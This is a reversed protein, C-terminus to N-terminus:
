DDKGFCVAVLGGATTVLGSILVVGDLKWITKNPIDPRNSEKISTCYPFCEFEYEWKEKIYEIDRELSSIEREITRPLSELERIEKNLKFLENIIKVASAANKSETKAYLGDVKDELEEIVALAEASSEDFPAFLYDKAKLGTKKSELQRETKAINELNDVDMGNQEIIDHLISETRNYKAYLDDLIKENESITMEFSGNQGDLSATKVYLSLPMDLYHFGGVLALLSGCLLSVFGITMLIM